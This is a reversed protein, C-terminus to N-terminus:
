PTFPLNHREIVAELRAVGGDQNMILALAIFDENIPDMDEPELLIRVSWSFADTVTRVLSLVRYPALLDFDMDVGGELLHKRFLSQAVYLLTHLPPTCACYM